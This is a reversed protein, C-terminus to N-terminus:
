VKLFAITDEFFVTPNEAHLWHGAGHVKVLKCNRIAQFREDPEPDPMFSEDGWFFLVPCQINGFIM